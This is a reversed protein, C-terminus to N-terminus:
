RTTEEAELKALEKRLREAKRANFESTNRERYKKLINNFEGYISKANELKWYFSKNTTDSYDPSYSKLEKIFDQFLTKQGEYDDGFIYAGTSFSINLLWEDKPQRDDDSWSIYKGSGANKDRLADQFYSFVIYDTVKFYNYSNPNYDHSLKLDYKEYWEILLLHNKAKSRMDDIDRFNYKDFGQYKDCVTLIETYAKKWKAVNSNYEEMM